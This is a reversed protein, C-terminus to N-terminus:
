VGRNLVPSRGQTLGLSITSICLLASKHLHFWIALVGLSFGQSICGSQSHLSSLLSRFGSCHCIPVDAVSFPAQRWLLYSYTDGVSGVALQRFSVEPLKQIRFDKKRPVLSPLLANTQWSGWWHKMKSVARWKYTRTLKSHSNILVNHFVSSVTPSPVWARPQKEGYTLFYGQVQTSKLAM